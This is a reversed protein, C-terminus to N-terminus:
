LTLNVISHHQCKHLGCNRQWEVTNSEKVNVVHIESILSDPTLEWYQREKVDICKGDPMMAVCHGVPQTGDPSKAYEMALVAPYIQHKIKEKAEDLAEDITCESHIKANFVEKDELIGAKSFDTLALLCKGVEFPAESVKDLTCQMYRMLKPFCVRLGM